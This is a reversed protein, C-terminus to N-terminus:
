TRGCVKARLLHVTKDDGGDTSKLPSTSPVKLNMLRTLNTKLLPLLRASFKEKNKGYEKRARSIVADILYFCAMIGEYNGELARDMQRAIAKETSKYLYAKNTGAEALMLIRSKSHPKKSRFVEVLQLVVFPLCFM